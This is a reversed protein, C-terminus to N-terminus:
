EGHSVNEFDVRSMKEIAKAALGAREIGKTYVESTKAETHAMLSMIEYQTAGAAALLHAAGRRVGHQTRGAPLGAQATWDQIRNRLSEPSAFPNGAETRLFTEGAEHLELEDLLQNLAPVEVPASGKKGPQFKITKTGNIIKIHDPGFRGADSIRPLTNISIMFWLRATSGPQHRKLFAQMEKVSWPVAGGRNTHVKTIEFVPSQKQYGRKEGWSYAARLAKICNDAAGTKSGFSDQIFVFGESPMAANLSGMREGLEDKVNCAQLLLSKYSKLTLPSKSKGEVKKALADLYNQCLSDLTGTKLVVPRVAELEHGERAAAYHEHFTPEGPGVPIKIRKNRAGEVRVRWRTTGAATRDRILGAFKYKM